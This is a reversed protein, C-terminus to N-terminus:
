SPTQAPSHSRILARLTRRLEEAEARLAPISDAVAAEDGAQAADQVARVVSITERPSIIALHSLMRHAHKRVKRIDRLAAANELEFLEADFAALYEGLNDRLRAPDNKSLMRLASLDLGIQDDARATLAKAGARERPDHNKHRDLASLIKEITVPKSIFGDMGSNLCEIMKDRTTYATTAFILAYQDVPERTRYIRTVEVGNMDPLDWDLLVLAYSRTSMRALAETGDRAIDVSYGLANLFERAVLRNYDLDDVVLAVGNGILKPPSGKLDLTHRDRAAPLSVTFHFTSGGAPNDCVGIEGGMKAAFTACVSLGLGLGRVNSSRNRNLRYFKRFINEKEAAPIGPGEDAVEFRARLHNSLVQECRVGLTIVGRDSYKIANNLFNILIQRIKSADGELWVPQDIPMDLVIERGAQHAQWESIDLIEQVLKRLEFTQVDLSVQNAEIKSFDLIDGIMQSLHHACNRLTKLLQAEHPEMPSRMLLETMGIVGNMPNRLEHSINAVFDSKATNANELQLTRIRIIEELQTTRRRNLFARWWFLASVLAILVAAYTTYAWVTRYWPPAVRFTFFSAPGTQGSPLVARVAFQYTAERMASLQRRPELGPASWNKELGILQSQFLTPRMLDVPLASYEFDLRTEGFPITLLNTSAQPTVALTDDRLRLQVEPASSARRVSRLDLDLIGGQGAIWLRGHGHHMEALADTVRGVRKLGPIVLTTVTPIGSKGDRANTLLEIVAIDRESASETAHLFVFVRGDPLPNSLATITWGDFRHIPTFTDSGPDFRFLDPGNAVLLSRLDTGTVISRTFIDAGLIANPFHTLRAKPAEGALHDLHMRVLSNDTTLVWLEGSHTFHFRRVRAPLTALRRPPQWEGNARSVLEVELDNAYILHDESDPVRTVAAIYEPLHKLRTIGETHMQRLGLFGAVILGDPHDIIDSLYYTTDSPQAKRPADDGDLLLLERNTLAYLNGGSRVLRRTSRADFDTGGAFFRIDMDAPFHAVGTGLGAWIMGDRARCLFHIQPDRLGDTEDIHARVQGTADMLHIGNLYTAIAIMGDDMPVAGVVLDNSIASLADERLLTLSEGDFRYLHKGTGLLMDDASPHATIFTVVDRGVQEMDLVKRPQGDRIEQIGDLQNTFFLRDRVKYAFVRLYSRFPWITFREGDWKYVRDTAFFYVAGEFPHVSWITIAEREAEPLKPLLSVFRARGPADQELHGLNGVAGVWIRGTPDAALAQVQNTGEIPIHHWRSGDYASVVTSALYVVGHADREVAYVPPVLGAAVTDMAGVAPGFRARGPADRADAVDPAGSAASAAMAAALMVTVRLLRRGARLGRASEGFGVSAGMWAM